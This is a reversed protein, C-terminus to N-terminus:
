VLMKMVYVFFAFMFWHLSIRVLVVNKSAKESNTERMEDRLSAMHALSSHGDAM